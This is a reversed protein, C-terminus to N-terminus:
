IDLILAIHDSTSAVRGYNNWGIFHRRDNDTGITTPPIIPPPPTYGPPYFGGPPIAAPLPPGPPLPLAPNAAAPGDAMAVNYQYHGIPCNAAAPIAGRNYPTGTVRNVITINAPAGAAAAAGYKTFVNDIADYRGRMGTGAYGYAPYGVANAPLPTVKPQNWPTPDGPSTNSASRSRSIMHTFFYGQETNNYVVGPTPRIHQTYGLGAPVGGIPNILPGYAQDARNHPAVNFVSVNFDGVIVNVQNAALPAQIEQITALAQTGAVSDPIIGPAVPDQGPRAHFSFLNIIRGGAVTLDIFKTLFPSRDGANPFNIPVAPPAGVAVPHFFQFQGALQNETVGAPAGFGPALLRNPLCDESLPPLVPPVAGPVPAAIPGVPFGSPPPFSGWPDGYYGAAAPAPQAPGVSPAGVVPAPWVYPGIFQLKTANYYVAIGEAVGGLGSILPPVLCWAENNANLAPTVKLVDLLSAASADYVTQGEALGNMGRQVEVMVFIDPVIALGAPVVGDTLNSILHQLRQQAAQYARLGGRGQPGDDRGSKRSDTFFREYGFNNVNWYMIKIAM